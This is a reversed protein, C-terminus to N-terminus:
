SWQKSVGFGFLQTPESLMRPRRDVMHHHYLPFQGVLMRIDYPFNMPHHRLSSRDILWRELWVVHQTRQSVDSFVCGLLAENPAFKRDVFQEVIHRPSENWLVISIGGSGIKSRAWRPWISNSVGAGSSLRFNKTSTIPMVM